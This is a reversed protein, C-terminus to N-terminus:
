NYKKITAIQKKDSPKYIAASEKVDQELKEILANMKQLATFDDGENLIRKLEILITEKKM